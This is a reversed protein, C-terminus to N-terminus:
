FRWCSSCNENYWKNRRKFNNFNTSLVMYKKQIGTDIASAAATIRLPALVNKALPILEKMLPGALKSVLWGLHRGSQIINSIPARSFKLDTSM